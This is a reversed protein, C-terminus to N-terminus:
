SIETVHDGTICRWRTGLGYGEVKINVIRKENKIQTFQEVQSKDICTEWSESSSSFQDSFANQVRIYYQEGINLFNYRKGVEQVKVSADTDSWDTTPSWVFYMVMLIIVIVIPVLSVNVNSM